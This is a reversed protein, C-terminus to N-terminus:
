KFFLLFFFCSFCIQGCWNLKGLILSYILEKFHKKIFSFYINIYSYLNDICRLSLPARYSPFVDGSILSIRAKAGKDRWRMRREEGKDAPSPAHRAGGSM